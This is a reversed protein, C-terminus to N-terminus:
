WSTVSAEWKGGVPKTDTVNVQLELFQKLNKLLIISSNMRLRTGTTARKALIAVAVRLVVCFSELKMVEHPM